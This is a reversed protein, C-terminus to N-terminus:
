EPQAARLHQAAKSTAHPLCGFTSLPWTQSKERVLAVLSASDGVPGVGFGSGTLLSAVGERLLLDNGALIVHWRSAVSRPRGAKRHDPGKMAMGATV